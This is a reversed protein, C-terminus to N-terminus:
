KGQAAKKAAKKAAKTLIYQFKYTPLIDGMIDCVAGMFIKRWATETQTTLHKGSEVATNGTGARFAVAHYLADITDWAPTFGQIRLFDAIADAYPTTRWAGDATGASAIYANWMSKPFLAQAKKVNEVQADEWAKREAKYDEICAQHTANDAEYWEKDHMKFNGKEIYELNSAIMSKRNAIQTNIKKAYDKSEFDYVHWIAMTTRFDKGTTVNFNVKGANITTTM